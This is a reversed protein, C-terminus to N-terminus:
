HPVADLWARRTTHLTPAIGESLERRIEGLTGFRESVVNHQHITEMNVQRAEVFAADNLQPFADIVGRIMERVCDEVFRPRRHAKEVVHAEDARKMLEYIESSMAHEVIALLTAADIEDDCLETCGIHLTGLGRQNHTAVPVVELIREIDDEDFGQDQLTQRAQGAVLEQACPCATMGQATVGVLRRTGVESCTASGHLTYLEQTQIGSIPAPKHEPFRAEISVEARRARQRARVLQAIHEALTEAKFTSEGLVVEGIADNVVEEFRSMHAGKQNPGLEVVCEFRASFLQEAGNQRIRIVKEVDTVGVRSLSLQVMPRRAQVDTISVSSSPNSAM